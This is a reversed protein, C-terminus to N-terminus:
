RIIHGQQRLFREVADASNGVAKVAQELQERTVGYKKTWSVVEHAQELSILSRDPEGRKNPDDPM